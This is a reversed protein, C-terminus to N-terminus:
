DYLKLEKSIITEELVRYNVIEVHPFSDKIFQQSRKKIIRVEEETPFRTIYFIVSGYAPHKKLPTDIPKHYSWPSEDAIKKYHDRLQEKAFLEDEEKYHVGFGNNFYGPTPRIAGYKFGPNQMSSLEYLVNFFKIDEQQSFLEAEEEGVGSEEDYQGTCYAVLLEAFNGAYYNTDIVFIYM